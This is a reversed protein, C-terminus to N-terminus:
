RPWLAGLERTSMLRERGERFDCIREQFRGGFIPITGMKCVHFHLSLFAFDWTQSIGWGPHSTAAWLGGPMCAHGCLQVNTCLQSRACQRARPNVRAQIAAGM